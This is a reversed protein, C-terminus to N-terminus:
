GCDDGSRTSRYTPLPAGPLRLYAGSDLAPQWNGPGSAYVVFRACSSSLARALEGPASPVRWFASDTAIYRSGPLMGADFYLWPRDGLVILRSGASGPQSKLFAAESRDVAPSGPFRDAYAVAPERALILDLWNTYYAPLGQYSFNHLYPRPPTTGNLLATEQAPLILAAEAGAILVLAAPVVALWRFRIQGVVLAVTFALAPIAEHSYHTLERPTLSAGALAAPLWVAALRGARTTAIRMGVVAVATLAGLRVLLPFLTGGNAWVLYAHDAPIVLALYSALSGQGALIAAVVVATLLLGCAALFLRRLREQSALLPIALAFGDFAFSPRIAVAVGLLAGSALVVAARRSFALLLAGMFFPLAAVEVNLLDGDLVPLSLALGTLLAALASAWPQLYRRSVEFTLVGAAIVAATATLQVVSHHEISGLAQTLRFLWFIVPPQNDYVGSYLPMGRGTAWAVTTFFGEDSYWRPEFLSPVRILVVLLVIGLRLQATHTAGRLPLLTALRTGAGSRGIGFVGRKVSGASTQNDAAEM